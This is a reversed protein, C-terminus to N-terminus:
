LSKIKELQNQKAYENIASNPNSFVIGSKMETYAVNIDNKIFENSELVFQDFNTEFQSLLDDISGNDCHISCACWNGCMISMQSVNKFLAGELLYLMENIQKLSIHFVVKKAYDAFLIGEINDSNEKKLIVPSYGKKLLFRNVRQYIVKKHVM